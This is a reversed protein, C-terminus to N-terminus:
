VVRCATVLRTFARAADARTPVVSREVSWRDPAKMGNAQGM